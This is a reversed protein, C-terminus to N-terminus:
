SSMELYGLIHRYYAEKLLAFCLVFLSYVLLQAVKTILPKLTNSRHGVLHIYAFIELYTITHIESLGNLVFLKKNGAAIVVLTQQLTQPNHCWHFLSDKISNIAFLVGLYPTSYNVVNPSNWWAQKFM